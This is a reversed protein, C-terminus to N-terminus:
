ISEKVLTSRCHRALAVTILARETEIAARSAALAADLARAREVSREMEDVGRVVDEFFQKIGTLARGVPGTPGSGTENTAVRAKAESEKANEERVRRTAESRRVGSGFLWPFFLAFAILLLFGAM